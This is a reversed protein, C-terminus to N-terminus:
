GPARAAALSPSRVKAAGVGKAKGADALNLNHNGKRKNLLSWTRAFSEDAHATLVDDWDKWRTSSFALASVPPLKLSAIPISLSTAKKALSGAGCSDACECPDRLRHMWGQSLEFSRSDRVVSTCRLSRDRSATL